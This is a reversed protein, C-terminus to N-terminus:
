DVNPSETPKIKTNRGGLSTEAYEMIENESLLKKLKTMNFTLTDHMAEVGVKKILRTILKGKEKIEVEKKCVSLEVTGKTGVFIVPQDKPEDEAILQLDKKIETQKKYIGVADITRLKLELHILEDTLVEAKTQQTITVVEGTPSNVTQVQVTSGSSKLAAQMAEVLKNIKKSSNITVEIAM